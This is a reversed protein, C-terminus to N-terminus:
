NLHRPVWKWSVSRFRGALACLERHLGRIRTSKVAYVGQMQRVLLQSDSRVEVPDTVGEEVLWKLAAIAASYEAVNNTMERGSGAVGRGKMITKGDRIVVFGYCGVGGPNRPECLGDVYVIVRGM